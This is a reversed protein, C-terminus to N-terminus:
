SAKRKERAGGPADLKLGRAELLARELDVKAGNVRHSLFRFKAKSEFVDRQAYLWGGVGDLIDILETLGEGLYVLAEAESQARWTM